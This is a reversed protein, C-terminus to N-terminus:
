RAAALPQAAPAPLAFYFTAGKGEAATAWVKGRHKELAHKVVTLGLGTGDYERQAHLRNFAVFLKDYYQMNFGAGNDRVYYTVEDEGAIAGIEIAPTQAKAAYKVANGVLNAWVQRLLTKSGYAPPLDDIQWQVPPKDPGAALDEVVERVLDQMSVCAPEVQTFQVKSFSLIDEILQNMRGSAQAILTILETAEAQERIVPFNQLVRTLGQINRLPSKLDHSVSYAFADLEKVLSGLSANRESLEQNLAQLELNLQSVKAEAQQKTRIEQKLKATLQKLAQEQQLGQRHQHYHKIAAAVKAKFLGPIFPKGVYDTGGVRYGREIFGEELSSTLFIIPVHEYRASQRIAEATEFGNLGPMMVDLIILDVEAMGPLLNLAQNGSTAKIVHYHNSVLLKEMFFLNSSCDDVTLITPM